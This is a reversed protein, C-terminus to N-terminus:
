RAEEDGGYLRGGDGLAGGVLQQWGAGRSMEGAQGFSVGGGIDGPQEVPLGDARRRWTKFHRAGRDADCGHGRLVLADELTQQVM